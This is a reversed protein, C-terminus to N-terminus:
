RMGDTKTGWISCITRAIHEEPTTGSAHDRAIMFQMEFRGPIGSTDARRGIQRRFETKLHNVPVRRRRRSSKIEKTVGLSYFAKKFPLDIRSWM